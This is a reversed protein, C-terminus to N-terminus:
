EHTVTTQLHSHQSHFTFAIKPTYANVPSSCQVPSSSQFVPSSQQVSVNKTEVCTITPKIPKRQSCPAQPGDSVPSCLCNMLCFCDELSKEVEIASVCVACTYYLSYLLFTSQCDITALTYLALTNKKYAFSNSNDLEM